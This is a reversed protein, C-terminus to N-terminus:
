GAGDRLLAELVTPLTRRWSRGAVLVRDSLRGHCKPHPALERTPCFSFEWKETVPHLCAALVEFQAASYYRSCPNGKAARTKQFDVRAHGDRNRQRLVNKCEIRFLRREFRVTFDPQGDQDLHQVDSVGPVRELQSGLHHEAVRGRIAAALRFSSGLVDLLEGGSLGLAEELPHPTQRKRQKPLHLRRAVRDALLLREGPDLGTAVREFEVFRLLQEPRFASVVETSFDVRPMELKRRAASREREWSAWGIRKAELLNDGKFEVSMSFWTPTHVSPDVAIFLDMEEHVGFMLTIKKRTYDIFLDHFRTFESGYKVQFRHEDAPRGAQKYKNATFAYCVLDLVEGRPSQIRYEFPAVTPDPAAIIRAGAEELAQTIRRVNTHGRVGRYRAIASM